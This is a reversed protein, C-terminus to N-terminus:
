KSPSLRPSSCGLFLYDTMPPSNKSFDGANEEYSIKLHLHINQVDVGDEKYKPLIECAVAVRCDFKWLKM